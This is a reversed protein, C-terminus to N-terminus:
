IIAKRTGRLAVEDIFSQEERNREVRWQEHKRERLLEIARRQQMARILRNRIELAQGNLTDLLHNQGMIDHRLKFRYSVSYRLEIINQTKVRKLKESAQLEFFARNLRDLALRATGIEHNKRGLQTKCEEERRKRLNLLTELRFQFRKV